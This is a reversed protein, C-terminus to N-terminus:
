CVHLSNCSVTYFKGEVCPLYRPMGVWGSGIKVWPVKHKPPKKGWGRHILVMVKILPLSHQLLCTQDHARHTTTKKKREKGKCIKM